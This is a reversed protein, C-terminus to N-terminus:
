ESICYLYQHGRLFLDKGALAPSADFNDELKNTALVEFQDADKIVVAGGDRGLLYVRGNAAAPSAYVGFMGEVRQAEFLPQGATAHFCSLLANNGSFFYLREESLLPSPVYPTNRDHTWAVADTGTLDGTHGLRIAMLSNGRFGSLAYVKGFGHVPTPIVNQTM